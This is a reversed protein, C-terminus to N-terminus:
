RACSLGPSPEAVLRLESRSGAGCGRLSTESSGCPGRSRLLEKAPPRRRTSRRRTSGGVGLSSSLPARPAGLPAWHNSSVGPPGEEQPAMALLAPFDTDASSRSSRESTRAAGTWMLDRDDGVASWLRWSTSRPSSPLKLTPFSGRGRAPAPGLDSSQVLLAPSSLDDRM